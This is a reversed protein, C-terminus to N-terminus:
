RAGRRDIWAAPRLGRTSTGAATARSDSMVRRPRRRRNIVDTATSGDQPPPPPPPPVGVVGVPGTAPQAVSATAFSPQACTFSPLGVEYRWLGGADPM